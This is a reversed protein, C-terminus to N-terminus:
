EREREKKRGDNEKQVQLRGLMAVFDQVVTTSVAFRAGALQGMLKTLDVMDDAEVM